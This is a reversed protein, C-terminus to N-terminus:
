SSGRQSNSDHPSALSKQRSGILLGPTNPLVMSWFILATFVLAFFFNFPGWLLLDKAIFLEIVNMALVAIMQLFGCLVPWKGTLIWGAMLLEGVGILLTLTEGWEPGFVRTVIELHRPTVQLIKGLLGFAIWVLALAYPTKKRFTTVLTM